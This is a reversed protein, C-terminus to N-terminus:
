GARAIADAVRVARVVERVDHVRVIHAGRAVMSVVAGITGEVREDEPLDLIAGIFRKRSPGVLM